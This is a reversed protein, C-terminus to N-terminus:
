ASAARQGGRQRLGDLAGAAASPRQVAAHALVDTRAQAAVEALHAHVGVAVGVLEAARQAGAGERVAAVDKKPLAGVAGAAAAAALQQRVLERVHRLL